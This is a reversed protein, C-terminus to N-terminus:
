GSAGLVAAFWDVGEVGVATETMRIFVTSVVAAGALQCGVVSLGDAVAPRTSAM